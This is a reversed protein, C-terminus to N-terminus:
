RGVEPHKTKIHAAMQKVTRRCHPCVGCNVRAELRRKAAKAKGAQINAGKARSEAWQRQRHASEANAKEAAIQRELEAIRKKDPDTGTFHQPHGNPCYFVEHDKLRRDYLDTAM